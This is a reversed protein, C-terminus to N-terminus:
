VGRLMDSLFNGTDDLINMLVTIKGEVTSTDLKSTEQAPNVPTAGLLRAKIDSVSGLNISAREIVM